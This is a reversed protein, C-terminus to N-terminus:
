KVARNTERLTVIGKKPGPVAGKVLILGKESDVRVIELNLVTVRENGMRGASPMGKFVRGPSTGAGLSGPARHYKSGHTEPGRSHGHRKIPGATGKGKSTGIIDIKDGDSFIDVKIEQGIEYGDVNDTRFEKLVRKSEVGAKKYHGKSPMNENKEKINGYGLQVANYGDKEETKKQVVIMGESQIVTVPVLEGDEKFVQTMGLKKGIIAKM